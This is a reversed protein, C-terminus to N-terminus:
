EIRPTSTNWRRRGPEQHLRAKQCRRVWKDWWALTPTSCLSWSCCLHGEAPWQFRSWSKLTLNTGIRWLIKDGKAPQDERIQTSNDWDFHLSLNSWLTTIQRNWNPSYNAGTHKSSQNVWVQAEVQRTEDCRTQESDAGSEAVPVQYQGVVVASHVVLLWRGAGCCCVILVIFFGGYLSSCLSVRSFEAAISLLLREYFRGSDIKVYLYPIWILYAFCGREHGKLKTEM